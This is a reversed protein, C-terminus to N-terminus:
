LQVEQSSIEVSFVTGLLDVPRIYDIYFRRQAVNVKDRISRLEDMSYVGKIGFTIGNGESIGRLRLFSLNVIPYKESGGEPISVIPHGLRDFSISSGDDSQHKSMFSQIVYANLPQGNIPQWYRGCSSVDVIEGGGLSAMFEEVRPLAKVTIQVGGKWDAPDGHKRSRRSWLTQICTESGKVVNAAIPGNM